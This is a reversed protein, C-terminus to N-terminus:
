KPKQVESRKKSLLASIDMMFANTDPDSGSASLSTSIKRVTPTSKAPPSTAADLSPGSVLRINALDCLSYEVGNAAPVDSKSKKRRKDSPTSKSSSALMLTDSVELSMNTDRGDVFVELVRGFKFVTVKPTM